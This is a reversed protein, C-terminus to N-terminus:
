ALTGQPKIAIHEVGIAAGARSGDGPRPDGQVVGELVGDLMRQSLETLREQPQSGFFLIADSDGTQIAALQRAIAGPDAGTPSNHSAATM